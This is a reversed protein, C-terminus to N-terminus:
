LHPCFTTEEGALPSLSQPPPAATTGEKNPRSHALANPLNGVVSARLCHPDKKAERVESQPGPSLKDYCKKMWIIIISFEQFPYFYFLEFINVIFTQENQIGLLNNSFLPIDHFFIFLYCV